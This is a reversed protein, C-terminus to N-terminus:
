VQSNGSVEEGRGKREGRGHKETVKPQCRAAVGVVADEVANTKGRKPILHLLGLRLAVAIELQSRGSGCCLCLCSRCCCVGKSTFDYLLNRGFGM